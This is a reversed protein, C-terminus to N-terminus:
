SPATRGGLFYDTANQQGRRFRMGLATVGLLYVIVITLDLPHIHMSHSKRRAEQVGRSLADLITVPDMRTLFVRRFPATSDCYMHFKKLKRVQAASPGVITSRDRM